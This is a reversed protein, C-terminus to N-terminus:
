AAAGTPSKLNAAGWSGGQLLLTCAAVATLSFWKDYVLTKDVGVSLLLPAGDAERSTTGCIRCAVRFVTQEQVYKGGAIRRRARLEGNEKVNM